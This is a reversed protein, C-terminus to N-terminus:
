HRRWVRGDVLTDQYTVSGLISTLHGSLWRPIGAYDHVM